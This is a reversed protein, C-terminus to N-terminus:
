GKLEMVRSYLDKVTNANKLDDGSIQVGYESDIMGITYLSVVSSWDELDKFVTKETITGLEVGDFQEAFKSVFEEM